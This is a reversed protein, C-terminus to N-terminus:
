KATWEDYLRRFIGARRMLYVVGARKPPALVV